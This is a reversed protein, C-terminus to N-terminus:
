AEVNFLSLSPKTCRSVLLLLNATTRCPARCSRCPHPLAPPELLEEATLHLELAQVCPRLPRSLAQCRRHPPFLPACSPSSKGPCVFPRHSPVKSLFHSATLYTSVRVSPCPRDPPLDTIQPVLSLRCWWPHSTPTPVASLVAELHSAQTPCGQLSHPQATPKDLAEQGRPHCLSAAAAPLPPPPMTGLHCTCPQCLLPPGAVIPTRPYAPLGALSSTRYYSALARPKWPPECLPAPSRHPDPSFSTPQQVIPRVSTTPQTLPDSGTLFLFPNLLKKIWKRYVCLHKKPESFYSPKYFFYSIKGQLYFIGNPAVKTNL